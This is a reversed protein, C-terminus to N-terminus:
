EESLAGDLLRKCQDLEDLTAGLAGVEESSFNAAAPAHRAGSVTAVAASSEAGSPALPPEVEEVDETLPEVRAAHRDVPPGEIDGGLLSPLIGFFGRGRGTEEEPVGN